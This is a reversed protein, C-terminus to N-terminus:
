QKLEERLRNTKEIRAQEILATMKNRYTSLITEVQDQLNPNM